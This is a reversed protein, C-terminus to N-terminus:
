DGKSDGKATLAAADVNSTHVAFTEPLKAQAERLAARTEEGVHSAACGHLISKECRPNPENGPQGCFSCPPFTAQVPTSVITQEENKIAEASVSAARELGANFGHVWATPATTQTDQLKAGCVNCHYPKSM